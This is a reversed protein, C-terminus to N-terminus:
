RPKPPLLGSPPGPPIPLPPKPEAESKPLDPQPNDSSSPFPPKPLPFGPPPPPLPLNLGEQLKEVFPLKDALFGRTSNTFSQLAFMVGTCITLFFFCVVGTEGKTWGSLFGKVLFVIFCILSLICLYLSFSALPQLLDTVISAIGSVLGAMLGAKEAGKKFANISNM